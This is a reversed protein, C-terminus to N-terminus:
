EKQEECEEYIVTNDSSAQLLKQQMPQIKEWAYMERWSLTEKMEM